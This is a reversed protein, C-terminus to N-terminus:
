FALSKFYKICEQADKQATILMQKGKEEMDILEIEKLHFKETLQRYKHEIEQNQHRLEAMEKLQHACDADLQSKHVEDQINLRHKLSSIQSQLSVIVEGSEKLNVRAQSNEHENARLEDKLRKVLSDMERQELTSQTRGSSVQEIRMTQQKLQNCLNQIEQRQEIITHEADAQENRLKTVLTNVKAIEQEQQRMIQVMFGENSDYNQKQGSSQTATGKSPVSGMKIAQITSEYDNGGGNANARLHKVSLYDDGISEASNLEVLAAPQTNLQQQM